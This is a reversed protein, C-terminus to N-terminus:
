PTLSALYAEIEEATCRTCDLAVADQILAEGRIGFLYRIVLIGDTGGDAVGNGDVDLADLNSGLYAEIEEATCRTCDLAVADQILAEGRIGFLYRIVLIGDTGGDAVGNGDVDLNFSLVEFEVPVSYFAYNPSTASTSFRIVSTEGEPLGEAVTYNVTYLSAPLATNPWNSDSWEVTLYKDTTLDNDFDGTDDNPVSDELTKETPLVDRFSGWTLKSSDYHIRLGLGSLNQNNDSTTYNVVMSFSTGAEAKPTEPDTSVIQYPGRNDTTPDYNPYAYPDDQDNPDTDNGGFQTPQEYRDLYGDQDFDTTNDATHLNGFHQIEWDDDISDNDLTKAQLTVPDMTELLVPFDDSLDEGGWNPDQNDLTGVLVPVKDKEDIGEDYTGNGNNDTGYGADLNFLETQTLSFDFNGFPADDKVTFKVTFLVVDTGSDYLPGGDDTDIAAGSFYIKGEQSSNERHTDTTELTDPDTFTFPFISTIEGATVPTGDASIAPATLVQTPYNLTFACGAVGTADNVIINLYLDDGQSFETKETAGDSTAQLSLNYEALAISFVGLMLCFTILFTLVLHTHRM